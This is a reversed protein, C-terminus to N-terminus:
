LLLWAVRDPLLYAGLLDTYQDQIETLFPFHPADFNFDRIKEWLQTRERHVILPLNAHKTTSSGCAHCTGM